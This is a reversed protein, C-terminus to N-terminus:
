AGRKRQQERRLRVYDEFSLDPDSISKRTKTQAAGIPNPPPPAKTTKQPEPKKAESSQLLLKAELKGLERAAAVPGLKNIREFEDTNKALEYMLAPGNESEIITQAVAASAGKFYDVEAMLEAYDDHKEAFSKERELHSRFASKHEEELRTRHEQEAKAKERQELKWDTLAEVYEAHTEFKEPDPKGDVSAKAEAKPKDEKGGAGSELRALREELAEARRREAERQSILKDVRRQWGSKKKPKDKESDGDEDEAEDAESKSTEDQEEKGETEEPDSESAEKQEVKEAPASEKAEKAPMEGGRRVREYDAFSLDGLDPSTSTTTEQENSPAQTTM